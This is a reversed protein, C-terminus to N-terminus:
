GTSGPVSPNKTSTSETLIVGTPTEAPASDIISSLSPSSAIIFPGAGTGTPYPNFGTGTGGTPGATPGGHTTTPYYPSQPGRYSSHRYKYPDYARKGVEPGSGLPCIQGVCSPLPLIPLYNSPVGTGVTGVTGTPYGTGTPYYGGSTGSYPFPPITLTSFGSSGGTHHHKPQHYPFPGITEPVHVSRRWPWAAIPTAALALLSLTTFSKM